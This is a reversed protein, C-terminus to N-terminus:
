AEAPKSRRKKGASAHKASSTKQALYHEVRHRPLNVGGKKEQRPMNLLAPKQALYHEVRHRPLNVGGKKGASAHKASSTKQALYHEVRHRPLNVGGKKEQRPMNLLAPKKLLIINM